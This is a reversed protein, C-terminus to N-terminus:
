LKDWYDTKPHLDSAGRGVVLPNYMSSFVYNLPSDGFQISPSKDPVRLQSM